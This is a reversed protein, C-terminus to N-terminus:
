SRWGYKNLLADRAVCYWRRLSDLEDHEDAPLLYSRELRESSPERLWKFPLDPDERLPDVIGLFRAELEVMRRWKPDRGLRALDEAMESFRPHGAFWSNLPDPM